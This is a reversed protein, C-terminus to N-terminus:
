TEPVHPVCVQALCSQSECQSQRQDSPWWVGAKGHDVFCLELIISTCGCGEILLFVVKLLSIM